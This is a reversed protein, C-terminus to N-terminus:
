DAAAQTRMADLLAQAEELEEPRNANFFPDVTRGGVSRMDFEVLRMDHRDTWALVKRVGAVLAAELDDADEGVPETALKPQVDVPFPGVSASEVPEDAAPESACGSLCIPLGLTLSLFILNLLSLRNKM